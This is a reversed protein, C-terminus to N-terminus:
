KTFRLNTNRTTQMDDPDIYFNNVNAHNLIDASSSLNMELLLITAEPTPTFTGIDFQNLYDM